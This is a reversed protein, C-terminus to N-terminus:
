LSENNEKDQKMQDEIGSYPISRKRWDSAILKKGVNSLALGIRVRIPLSRQWHKMKIVTAGNFVIEPLKLKYVNKGVRTVWEREPLYTALFADLDKQKM